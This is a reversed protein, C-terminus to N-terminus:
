CMDSWIRWAQKAEKYKGLGYLANGKGEWPGADNPNIEIAKDYCKIAEDYKKLNYLTNGKKNWDAANDPETSVV